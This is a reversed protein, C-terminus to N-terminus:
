EPLYFSVSSDRPAFSEVTGTRFRLGGGNWGFSPARVFRGYARPAYEDGLCDVHLQEWRMFREPHTLTMAAVALSSAGFEKNTFLVRVRRTSRGRYVRGFQGSLVLIDGPHQESARALFEATRAHVRLYEEGLYGDRDNTFARTSAIEQFVRELAQGYSAGLKKAGDPSLIAFWGEMGMKDPPAIRPLRDTVFRFAYTPDLEAFSAALKAIQEAIPKPGTYEPPYEFTSIIEEGKWAMRRVESWSRGEQLLQVDARDLGDDGVITVLEALDDSPLGDRNVAVIQDLTPRVSDTDM